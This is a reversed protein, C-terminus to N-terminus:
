ETRDRRLSPHQGRARVKGGPPSFFRRRQRRPTRWMSSMITDNHIKGAGDTIIPARGRMHLPVIEDVVSPLGEVCCSTTSLISPGYDAHPGRPGTRPRTPDSMWETWGTIITSSPPTLPQTSTSWLANRGGAISGGRLLPFGKRSGRRSPFYIERCTIDWATTDRQSVPFLRHEWHQAYRVSHRRISTKM